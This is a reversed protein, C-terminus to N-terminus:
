GTRKSPPRTSISTHGDDLIDDDDAGPLGACARREFEARPPKPPVNRQYSLPGMRGLFPRRKRLIEDRRRARQLRRRDAIGRPKALQVDNVNRTLREGLRDVDPRQASTRIILSHTCPKRLRISALCEFRVDSHGDRLGKEISLSLHCMGERKGRACFHEPLVFRHIPPQAAQSFETELGTNPVPLRM